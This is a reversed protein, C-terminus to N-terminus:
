SCPIPHRCGRRKGGDGCVKGIHEAHVRWLELEVTAVVGSQLVKSIPGDIIEVVKRIQNSETGKLLIAGNKEIADLLVVCAIQRRLRRNEDQITCIAKAALTPNGLIQTITARKGSCEAISEVSGIFKNSVNIKSACHSCCKGNSRNGSCSEACFVFGECPNRM